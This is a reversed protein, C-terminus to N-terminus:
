KLVTRVILGLGLVCTVIGTWGAVGVTFLGAIWFYNDIFYKM